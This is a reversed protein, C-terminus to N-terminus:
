LLAGLPGASGICAEPSLVPSHSTGQATIEIPQRQLHWLPEPTCTVRREQQQQQQPKLSPPGLPTHIRSQGWACHQRSVGHPLCGVKGFGSAVIDSLRGFERQAKFAALLFSTM